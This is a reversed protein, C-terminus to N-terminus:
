TEATRAPTPFDRRPQHNFFLEAYQQASTSLLTLTEVAGNAEIILFLEAEQQSALSVLAPVSENPKSGDLFLESEQAAAVTRSQAASAPHPKRLIPGNPNM